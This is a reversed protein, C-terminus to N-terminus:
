QSGKGSIFDEWSQTDQAADGIKRANRVAMKEVYNRAAEQAAGTQSARYRGSSFQKAKKKPDFFRKRAEDYISL